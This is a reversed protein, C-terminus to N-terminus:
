GRVAGTAALARRRLPGPLRSIGYWIPLKWSVTPALRLAARLHVDAAAGEGLGLHHVGRRYMLMARGQQCDAAYQPHEAEFIARTMFAETWCREFWVSTTNQGHRRYRTWIGPISGWEGGGALVDLWLKGDSVLPLREDFGYAPAASRKIMVAPAAFLNGKRLLEGPGRGGIKRWRAASGDPLVENTTSVFSEVDHACLVGAPHAEFWAIQAAIKGPLLVDDGGMFAVYEGRCARLGRNCNPTIGLNPGTVVRIRPDLAAYEALLQGTMDTSGDDAVVIELPEWAQAIASDLAEVLFAAQNYTVILISVLPRAM